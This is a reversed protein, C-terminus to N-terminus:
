ELWGANLVVIWEATTPDMGGVTRAYCLVVVSEIHGAYQMAAPMATDAVSELVAELDPTSTGECALATFALDHLGGVDPCGSGLSDPHRFSDPHVIDGAGMWIITAGFVTLESYASVAAVGGFDGPSVYFVYPGWIGTRRVMDPEVFGMESFVEEWARELAEDETVDRTEGCILEWAILDYTTYDLRIVATCSWAADRLMMTALTEIEEECATTGTEDAPPDVAPDVAPDASVDPEATASWSSYCGAGILTTACLAIRLAGSM